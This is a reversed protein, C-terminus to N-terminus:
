RSTPAVPLAARWSPMAADSSPPETDDDDRTPKAVSFRKEGDGNMPEAFLVRKKGDDDGTPKAASVFKTGDDDTLQAVM